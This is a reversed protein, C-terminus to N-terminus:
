NTEEGCSGVEVQTNQLLDCKEKKFNLTPGKGGESQHYGVEVQTNQLLDCKEKKFNLTPGKGGESQHYGPRVTDQFVNCLYWNRGM